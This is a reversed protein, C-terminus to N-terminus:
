GVRRPELSDGAALWEEDRCTKKFPGAMHICPPAIEGRALDPRGIRRRPTAQRPMARRPTVREELAFGGGCRAWIAVARGGTDIGREGTVWLIAGGGGRGVAPVWRSNAPLKCVAAVQQPVRTNLSASSTAAEPCSSVQSYLDHTVNSERQHQNGEGRQLNSHHRGLQSV